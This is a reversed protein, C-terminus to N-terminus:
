ATGKADAASGLCGHDFLRCWGVSTKNLAVGTPKCPHSNIMDQAEAVAQPDMHNWELARRRLILWPHGLDLSVGVDQSTM